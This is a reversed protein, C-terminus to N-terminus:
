SLNVPKAKIGYPIIGDADPEKVRRVILRVPMGFSLSDPDTDTMQCVLRFGNELRVLAVAYPAQDSFGTPPVRIVTWTLVKGTKGILESIQKQHRWIKVPSLM